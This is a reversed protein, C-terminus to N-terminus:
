CGTAPYILGPELLSQADANGRSGSVAASSNDAAHSAGAVTAAGLTQAQAVQFTSASAALGTLLNRRKM